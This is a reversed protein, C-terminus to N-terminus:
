RSLSIGKYVFTTSGTGATPGLTVSPDVVSTLQVMVASPNGTLNASVITAGVFGVVEYTVNSGKGSVCNGYVILTRPQGICGALATQLTAKTGASGSLTAPSSPTAQLGNPGFTALDAATPGNTFWNIYDTNTANSGSRLSILGFNGPATTDPYISAELAGDAGPLVNNPPVLNTLNPLKVTFNDQPVVGQTATKAGTLVDYTDKDIALPLLRCGSGKFGTIGQGRLTATAVASRDSSMVGLAPAFFLQLPGTSVTSDRRVKVRVSNPFPAGAGTQFSSGTTTPDGVYGVEVDSAPVVLTKDGARHMQAFTVAVAAAATQTQQVLAARAAATLNAQNGAAETAYLQSAGALAAADAAAQLEADARWAYGLDVAFAVMALLPILMLLVIVAVGAPRRTTPRLAGM